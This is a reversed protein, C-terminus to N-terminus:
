AVRAPSYDMFFVESTLGRFDKKVDIATNLVVMDINELIQILVYSPVYLIIKFRKIVFTVLIGALFIFVPSKSSM